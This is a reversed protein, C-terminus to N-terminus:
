KYKEIIVNRKKKMTNTLEVGVEFDNPLLSFDKILEHFLFGRSSNVKSKIEKKYFDNVEAQKLIESLIGPAKEDFKFVKKLNDVNPVILASLGEKDQGSVLAYKIYLSDELAMEIPEPEVNEGNALVITDKARGTFVLNGTATECVLDGTNFYGDKDFAKKTAEDNKYYGMFIQDGKVFLIGTEGIKCITGTQENVIKYSTRPTIKGISYKVDDDSRITVIVATETSGYGDIVDFGVIEFFDDCENQLKGGGSTITRIHGGTKARIKSYVLSSGLKHLPLNIMMKFFASINESFGPKKFRIDKKRLVRRAKIYSLSKNYFFHFIKGKGSDEIGKIIGDMSKKWVLPVGPILHPKEKIMDERMAYISSLILTVGHIIAMFEFFREGVHWIPLISMWRDDDYATVRGPTETPSYTLNKHSLMVGKPAGTTGSTYIISCLDDPKVKSFREIFFTDDGNRIKKGLACVEDFTIENPKLTIGDANFIIRKLNDGVGNKNLKDNGDRNHIAIFDADAHNLIYKLEGDPCNLGRPVDTGGLGMSAIVAIMWEVCNDSIIAMRKGDLKLDILGQAFDCVKEYFEGYKISNFKGSKDKFRFIIHEPYKKVAEYFLQVLNKDMRNSYELKM